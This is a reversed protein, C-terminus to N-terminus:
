DLGGFAFAPDIVVGLLPYQDILVAALGNQSFTLEVGKLLSELAISFIAGPM